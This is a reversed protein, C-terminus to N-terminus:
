LSTGPKDKLTKSVKWEKSESKSEDTKPSSVAQRCRSLMESNAYVVQSRPGAGSQDCWDRLAGKPMQEALDALEGRTIADFM